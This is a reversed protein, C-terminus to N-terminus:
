IAISVDDTLKIEEGIYFRETGEYVCVFDIDDIIVVAKKAM